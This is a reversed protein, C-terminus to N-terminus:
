RPRPLPAFQPLITHALWVSTGHCSLLALLMVSVLALSLGGRRGRFALLMGLLALLLPAVPAFGPQGAATQPHRIGDIAM